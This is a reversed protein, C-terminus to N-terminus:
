KGALAESRSIYKDISKGQETEAFKNKIKYYAELAKDYEQLEDYVKGARLLYLPTTFSNDSLESAKEYYTVGKEMDGLEVYADGLAGLAVSGLMKDKIKYSELYEVAEDYYGLHLYSIGAYYKALNATKTIGYNDIIDIFGLYNADGNLALNFSDVAFYKEAVFIQSQAEKETPVLYFKRFGFVIAVVGLIIGVVISITKQNDEIYQEIRSLAQEVNEVGHDAQSQKKKSM